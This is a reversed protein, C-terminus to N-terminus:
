RPKIARAALTLKRLLEDRLAEFYAASELLGAAHAYRILPEILWAETPTLRSELQGQRLRLSVWQLSSPVHDGHQHNTELMTQFLAEPNDNADYAKVTRGVEFVRRTVERMESEHEPTVIERVLLPRFGGQEDIAYLQGLLNSTLNVMGKDFELRTASSHKAAQFWGGLSKLIQVARERFWTDGGAIRTIGRPGPHYTASAGAGDRVGTQITVGRLLRGVIQPMVDPWLDPLRGLLTAEELREIFLQRQRQFYIGNSCLVLTPLELQAFEGSAYSREIVQVYTDLVGGLQDPNTCALLVDPLAREDFARLLDGRCVEAVNLEHIIGESEIRLHNSNRLAEASKSGPRELFCVRHDRRSLKATLHYYFGVGLAGFPLIGVTGERVRRM